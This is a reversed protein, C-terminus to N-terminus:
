RGIAAYLRPLDDALVVKPTSRTQPRSVLVAPYTSTSPQALATTLMAVVNRVSEGESVSVPESPACGAVNLATIGELSVIEVGQEAVEREVFCAVQERTVLRWKDGDEYPLQSYDHQKMMVLVQVLPTSAECTVAEITFDGIRPPRTLDDVLAKLRSLVGAPPVALPGAYGEYNVHTYVNRLQRCAHLFRCSDDRLHGRRRAESILNLLSGEPRRDMLADAYTAELHEELRRWTRDFDQAARSAREDRDVNALIM